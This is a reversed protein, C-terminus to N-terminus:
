QSSLIGTERIVVEVGKYHDPIIHSLETPSCSVFVVICEKGDKEGQGVGEVGEHNIWDSAEDIIDLISM